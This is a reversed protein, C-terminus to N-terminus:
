QLMVEKKMRSYDTYKWAIYVVMAGFLAAAMWNWVSSFERM